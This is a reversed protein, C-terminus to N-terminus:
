YGKVGLTPATNGPIGLPSTVQTSAAGTLSSQRQRARLARKKREEPDDVAPVDAAEPPTPIDKDLMDKGFTYVESLGGTAAAVGVRTLTETVGGM